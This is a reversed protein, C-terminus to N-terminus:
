TSIPQISLKRSLGHHSDFIDMSVIRAPGTMTTHSPTTTVYEPPIVTNYYDNLIYSMLLRTKGVGSDGLFIMKAHSTPMM